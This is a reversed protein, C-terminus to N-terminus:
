AINENAVRTELHPYAHGHNWFWRQLPTGRYESLLAEPSGLGGLEAPHDLSTRPTCDIIETHGGWPLSPLSDIAAGHLEILVDWNKMLPVTAETFIYSEFGECDSIILAHKDAFRLVDQATFLRRPNILEAVGNLSAMRLCLSREIPEPDYAYVPVRLLRALGVAYYGEASGIDIVCDYQSAAIQAIVPHLEREYTGLLKPLVHRNLTAERPYQLGAFPGYRVVTGYLEVYRETAGSIGTTRLYRVQHRRSRVAQIRQFLSAPLLRRAAERMLDKFM